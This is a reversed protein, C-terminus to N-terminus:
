LAHHKCIKEFCPYKGSIFIQALDTFDHLENNLDPSPYRLKHEVIKRISHLMYNGCSLMRINM